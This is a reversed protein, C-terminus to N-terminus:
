SVRRMGRLGRYIRVLRQDVPEFAEELLAPDIEVGEQRALESLMALHKVAKVSKGRRIFPEVRTPWAENTVLKFIPETRAPRKKAGEGSWGSVLLKELSANGRLEKGEVCLAFASARYLMDGEQYLDFSVTVGLEFSQSIKVGRDEVYEAAPKSGLMAERLHRFFGPRQTRLLEHFEHARQLESDRFAAGGLLQILREDDNM